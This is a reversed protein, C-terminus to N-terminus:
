RVVPNVLTGIGDISVAVIDGPVIAEYEPPTGCCIVDGPSLTMFRSVWSTVQDTNWLMDATTRSTTTRDNVTARLRVDRPELETEIWPGMSGFTDFSKGALFAHNTVPSMELATVDNFCTYGLVHARAESATIDRCPRGIIVAIEAEYVVRSAIAPYRIADGPGILSSTPKVFFGPGDRSDRNRWNGLLCVVQNHAEVPRLLRLEDLDGLLEGGPAPNTPGHRLRYARSGDVRCWTASKGAQVRAIRM